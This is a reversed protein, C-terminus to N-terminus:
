WIPMTFRDVYRQISLHLQQIRQHINVLMGELENIVKVQELLEDHQSGVQLKIEQDLSEVATLLRARTGDVFDNNAALSSDVLLRQDNTSLVSTV